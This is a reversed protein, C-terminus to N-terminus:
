CVVGNNKYLIWSTATNKYSNSKSTKGRYVELTGQENLLSKMKERQQSIHPNNEFMDILMDKDVYGNLFESDIWVHEFIDWWDEKTLGTGELNWSMEYIEQLYLSYYKRHLLILHRIYDKKMWAEKMKNLVDSFRTMKLIEVNLSPLMQYVQNETDIYEGALFFSTKPDENIMIKQPDINENELYRKLEMMM